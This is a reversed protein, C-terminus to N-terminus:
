GLWLGELRPPLRWSGAGPLGLREGLRDMDMRMWGSPDPRGQPVPAWGDDCRIATMWDRARGAHQRPRGACLRRLTTELVMGPSADLWCVHTDQCGPHALMRDWRRFKAELSQNASATLEVCVVQGSGDVLQLDPGGHGMLPDHALLDFRGWAEGCTLWGVERAHIALSACILNHRDYQRMGRLPGPGLSATEVPTFGLDALDPAIDAHAPLRVAMFMATRPSYGGGLDIRVPFGLDVLRLSALSLWALARPGAPLGPDLAHAQRTTLTRHSHTLGLMRLAPGRHSDLWARATTPDPLWAPPAALRCDWWNLSTGAQWWTPDFPDFEDSM